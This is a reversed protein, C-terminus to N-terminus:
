VRLEHHQCDGTDVAHAFQRQHRPLHPIGGPEYAPQWRYESHTRNLEIHGHGLGNGAIRQRRLRAALDVGQRRDGYNRHQFLKGGTGRDAHRHALGQQRQVHGVVAQGFGLVVTCRRGCQKRRAHFQIAIRRRRHHRAHWQHHSAHEIDASCRFVCRWHVATGSCIASVTSLCRLDDTARSM